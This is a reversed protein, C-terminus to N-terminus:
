ASGPSVFYVSRGLRGIGHIDQVCCWTVNTRELRCVHRKTYYEVHGSCWAPIRIWPGVRPPLRPLATPIRSVHVIPKSAIPTPDLTWPLLSEVHASTDYSPPSLPHKNDGEPVFQGRNQTHSEQTVSRRARVLHPILLRSPRHQPPNTPAPASNLNSSTTRTHKQRGEYDCLPHQNLPNKM